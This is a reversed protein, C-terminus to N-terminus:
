AARKFFALSRFIVWIALAIAIGVGIPSVLADMIKGPLSQWDINVTPVDITVATGQAFLTGSCLGVIGVSLMSVLLGLRSRVNSVLGGVWVFFKGFM